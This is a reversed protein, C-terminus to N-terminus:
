SVDPGASPTSISKPSEVGAGAEFAGRGGGGPPLNGGRGFAAPLESYQSLWSCGECDPGESNSAKRADLSLELYICLDRKVFFNSKKTEIWNKRDFIPSIRLFIVFEM